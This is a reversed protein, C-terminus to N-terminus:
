RETMDGRVAGGRSVVGRKPLEQGAQRKYRFGITRDNEEGYSCLRDTIGGLLTLTLVSTLFRRGTFHHRAM